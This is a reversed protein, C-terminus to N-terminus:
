RLDLTGLYRTGYGNLEVYAKGLPNGDADLVVCAGEWYEPGPWFEHRAHLEQDKVMPDVVLILGESPISVRWGSPYRLATHHSQWEDIPAVMFDDPLLQRIHGDVRVLTGFTEQAHLSERFRFLMIERKDALAISFWDWGKDIAPLLEGYQRDFWSLGTVPLTEGGLRLTGTTPMRTRSYYWTYGGFVYPHACGDYHAVPAKESCLTLDLEFAQHRSILRDQGDGGWALVHEGPDSSLDFLGREPHTRPLQFSRTWSSFHFRDDQVDTLSQHALINRFWGWKKFAWFVVEYGFPRGEESELHGTWYWWQIGCDSLFRDDDPLRVRRIPVPLPINM